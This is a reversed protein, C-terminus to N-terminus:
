TVIELPIGTLECFRKLQTTWDGFAMIWHQTTGVRSISALFGALPADLRIVVHPYGELRPPVALSEGSIVIAQWGGPTSRLQLLTVKGPHAIFQLHAGESRDSQAFEYDQSIWAQNEVAVAPNQPGAHGGVLINESEDWFWFEVFFCASRSLRNLIFLATAAGLDGELGVLINKEVLLPPYLAPRLGFVQHVEEAIDNYSIVDLKHEVALRAMGLSVRGAQVLTENRVGQIPFRERLQAVFADLDAQPTQVAAKTLQRVSLYEITPGLEHHLRFEDVFPSQMQENRFPLLGIRAQRLLRRVRSASATIALEEMIRPDDAAGSVFSFQVGLNTLTGLIELAGVAGSGRLVQVFPIKEPLRMWPLFCWVSVPRGALADVLTHIYFDESWVQCVLVFLDVEINKMGAAAKALSAHSNVVWSQKVDLRKKLSNEIKEADERILEVLEPLAVVSDFWEARLFILAVEPKPNSM